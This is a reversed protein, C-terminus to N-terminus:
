GRGSRAPLSCRCCASAAPGTRFRGRSFAIRDLRADRNGLTVRGGSLRLRDTGASTRLDVDLTEGAGLEISGGSCAMTVLPSAVGAQAFSATRAAADYRWEGADLRREDWAKAPAPVPAPAPRPTAAVPAPAPAPAPAPTPVATCSAIALTLPLAISYRWWARKRSM